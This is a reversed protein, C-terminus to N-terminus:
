CYNKKFDDYFELIKIYSNDFSTDIFYDKNAIINIAKQITQVGFISKLGDEFDSLNLNEEDLIILECIAKLLKRQSLDEFSLLEKVESLEDNLILIQVKFELISFPNKFIVGIYKGVDISHDLSSIVDLIDNADYDKFNLVMKRIQKATNKNNYILDEIPYVESFDPVIIQCSYFGLGDYNRIFINKGDNKIINVLFDFENQLTEGDYKWSSFPFSKKKNLFSFGIKGNSDVFHAEINSSDNVQEADFTPTEFSDLKNLDRGQMLETMTRYLSVELIPHAGFSVFITSNKPNILSIATVPYKGGLSGDLVEIIYGNERLTKIDENLIPYKELIDQPYIPLSLGEKIIKIKVYREIIESLAQTKAELENNGSALGNSAYLNSLINQPIFTKEDSDINTFPLTVIKDEFDSNFDIFDEDILEGNPNYIEILEDCLYSDGLNFIVEDDFHKRQGLYIDSFFNNTQLREIFEGYASAFSADKTNGKGNSYITTPADNLSLNVSHCNKLPNINNSLTTKIGLTQFINEMNKLTVELPTSKGLLQM